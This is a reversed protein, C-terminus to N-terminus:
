TSSDAPTLTEDGEAAWKRHQRVSKQPHFGLEFIHVDETTLASVLLLNFIPNVNM